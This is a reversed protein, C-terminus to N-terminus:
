TVSKSVNLNGPKSTMTIDKGGKRRTLKSLLKDKLIEQEVDFLKESLKKIKVKREWVEEKLSSRQSRLGAAEQELKEIDAM